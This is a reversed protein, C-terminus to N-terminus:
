LASVLDLERLRDYVEPHEDIWRLELPKLRLRRRLTTVIEDITIPWLKPEDPELPSAKSDLGLEKPGDKPEEYEFPTWLISQDPVFGFADHSTDKTTTSTAIRIPTPGSKKGYLISGVYGYHHVRARDNDLEAMSRQGLMRKLRPAYGIANHGWKTSNITTQGEANRDLSIKHLDTCGLAFREWNVRAVYPAIDAMSLYRPVVKTITETREEGDEDVIEVKETITETGFRVAYPTIGLHHDAINAALDDDNDDNGSSSSDLEHVSIGHRLLEQANTELELPKGKHPTDTGGNAHYSCCCTGRIAQISDARSEFRDIVNLPATTGPTPKKDPHVPGAFYMKFERWGAEIPGLLKAERTPRTPRTQYICRPGTMDVVDLTMANLM